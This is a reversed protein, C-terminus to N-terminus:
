HVSEGRPLTALLRVVGAPEEGVELAGGHLRVLERAVLLGLAPGLLQSAEADAPWPAPDRLRAVLPPPLTGAVSVALSVQAPDRGDVRLSVPAGPDGHELAAALLNAAVHELRPADWSGEPDGEVEVTLTLDRNVEALEDTVRRALADLATRTRTLAPAAGLRGRAYVLLDAVLRGMRGTSSRLRDLVRAQWGTLGGRGALLAASLQMTGLPNRLDHGVTRLLQDLV